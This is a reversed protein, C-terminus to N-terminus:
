SKESVIRAYASALDVIMEEFSKFKIGLAQETKAAVYPLPPSVVNGGLPFVGKEVLEPLKKKVIGQADNWEIVNPGDFTVGFNQHGKVEANLAKVHVVAVDDVHCVIGPRPEDLMIGLLSALGNRNSAGGETYDEKGKAFGNPGLVFSPMVSIVDFHPNKEAIFRRTASLALQKSACYAWFPHTYPGEPDPLINDADFVKPESPMVAAVSSTIVVKKVAPSQLASNLISLTANISPKVMTAEYDDSPGPGPAAVHIIYKVGKLASDFANAVALDPVITFELEDADYKSPLATKIADIKSDSRVALRVKYNQDLLEALIRFGVFGTAGTLLVLDQAM